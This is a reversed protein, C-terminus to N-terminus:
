QAFQITKCAEFVQDESPAGTGIARTTWCTLQEKDSKNVSKVYHRQAYGAPPPGDEGSGWAGTDGIKGDALAKGQYSPDKVAKVTDDYYENKASLVVTIGFDSGKEGGAWGYQNSKGDGVAMGKGGDGFNGPPLKICFSLKQTFGDPCKGSAAPAEAKVDTVTGALLKTACDAYKLMVDASKSALDPDPKDNKSTKAMDLRWTALDVNVKEACSRDKCDCMAKQFSQMKALADNNKKCGIAALSVAAVFSLTLKHM